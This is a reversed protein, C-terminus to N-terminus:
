EGVAFKSRTCADTCAAHRCQQDETFTIGSEIDHTTAVQAVNPQELAISLIERHSDDLARIVSERADIRSVPQSLKQGRMEDLPVSASLTSSDLPHSTLHACDGGWRACRQRRVEALHIM